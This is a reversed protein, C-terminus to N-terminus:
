NRKVCRPEGTIADQECEGPSCCKLVNEMHYSPVSGVGNDIRLGKCRQEGSQCSTKSCAGITEGKSLYETKTVPNILFIGIQTSVCTENDKAYCCGRASTIKSDPVQATTPCISDGNAVDCTNDKQCKGGNVDTCFPKDSPCCELGCSSEGDLCTKKCFRLGGLGPATYLEYGAPCCLGKMNPDKLSGINWKKCVEGKACCLSSKGNGQPCSQEGIKCSGGSNPFYSFKPTKLIGSFSLVLIVILVSIAGIVIWNSKNAM